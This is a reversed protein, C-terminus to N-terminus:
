KSPSTLQLLLHSHPTTHHPTTHPPSPVPRSLRLCAGTFKSYLIGHVLEDRLEPRAREIALVTSRRAAQAKARRAARREKEPLRSDESAGSATEHEDTAVEFQGRTWRGEASYFWNRSVPPAYEKPYCLKVQVIRVSM